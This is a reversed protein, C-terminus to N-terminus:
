GHINKIRELDQLSKKIKKIARETSVDKDILKINEHCGSCIIIEGLRIQRLTVTNFFGCNPCQSEIEANDLVFPM